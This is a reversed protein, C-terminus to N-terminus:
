KGRWNRDLYMKCERGDYLSISDFGCDSAVELDIWAVHVHVVYGPDATIKWACSEHSFCGCILHFEMNTIQVNAYYQCFEAM